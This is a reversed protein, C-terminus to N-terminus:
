PAVRSLTLTWSSREALTGEEPDGYTKRRSTSATLTIRTSRRRFSSAPLRFRRPVPGLSAVGVPEIPCRSRAAALNLARLALERPRPSFITASASRFSDSTDVCAQPTHTEVGACTQNLTNTGSITATGQLGRIRAARAREDVFRLLTPKASHFRVIRTGHSSRSSSCDLMATPAGTYDWTAQATGSITLRFLLPERAAHAGAAIACAAVLSLVALTRM